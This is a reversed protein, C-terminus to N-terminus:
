MLDFLDSTFDGITFDFHDAALPVGSGKKGGHAEIDLAYTGAGFAEGTFDGGKERFLAFPASRDVERHAVPGSLDFLFSQVDGAFDAGDAPRALLTVDKGAVLGFDIMAGDEIAAIFAGTGANVLFLEIGPTAVVPPTVTVSVTASAQEGFGDAATYLFSDAGSFGAAPTYLISDGVVEVTGGNASTSAASLIHLVDGEADVDNALVDIVVAGGAAVTASDDRAEIPGLDVPTGATVSFGYQVTGLMSGGAGDASYLAFGISHNGSGLSMGGLLDTIGNDGFLAYPAFSETKLVTGNDFDLVMSEVQGALSGAPDVEAFITLSRNEVQWAEFVAGDGLQGIVEETDADVLWAIIPDAAPDTPPHTYVGDWSLFSVESYIAATSGEFTPTGLWEESGAWINMYIKGSTDPVALGPNVVEHILVGDVYWQISNPEWVFAYDHMSTSADFGLDIWQGDYHGEASHYNVWVKTPDKGLFEFDIENWANGFYPGTYTFFNSNVGAEGSAQMTVEYRGYGYVDNSQIEAGTYEKGDRDTTDLTLTVTGDAQSINDAEWATNLWAGDVTFDSLYWITQDISDFTETFGTTVTTTM